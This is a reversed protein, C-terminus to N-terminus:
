REDSGARHSKAHSRVFSCIGRARPPSESLAAEVFSMFVRAPEDLHMEKLTNMRDALACGTRDRCIAKIAAKVQDRQEATVGNRRMGIVNMGAILNVGYVVCFPPVHMSACGGGQFMALYGISVFQHVMAGGGFNVRDAVRAHGGILVSNALTVHSGIQVNHGAHAEAMFYCHSGIRTPVEDGTGRSLTVHERFINHDGIVLRGPVDPKFARDQPDGGLVAYPHVDNHEGLTADQVVMAYPRIRTHAGIVCRPGIIAGTEIVCGPGIVASPDIRAGPDINATPDIRHASAVTM